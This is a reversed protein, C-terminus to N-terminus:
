KGGARRPRLSAAKGRTPAAGRVGQRRPSRLREYRLAVEAAFAANHRLLGTNAKLTAGRSKQVLESLLFPTLAKGHVRRSAAARLASEVMVEVAESPLAVDMPPPLALVLGGQGLVDFRAQMRAAAGAADQVVHELALGSERCFFAPFQHTGVGIVPVAMSELFELTKPLDLVSKAGACVVAVPFRSLAWLDTSVDWTEAVGRHVGGLGGTSFVRIGAAAAIECTASVTTGGSRGTVLAEALDRSGIKMHREDPRALWRLQAEELGVWIEGDLVAISAPIAGGDRIAEECALAVELNHPPPLGQAVVSTELAVLPLGKRRADAVEKGCRFFPSM